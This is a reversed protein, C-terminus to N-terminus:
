DIHNDASERLRAERRAEREKVRRELEDRRQYQKELNRWYPIREEVCKPHRPDEGFSKESKCVPCGAEEKNCRSCLMATCYDCYEKQWWSFESEWCIACTKDMNKRSFYNTWWEVGLRRWPQIMRVVGDWIVHHGSFVTGPNIYARGIEKEIESRLYAQFKAHSGKGCTIFATKKNKTTAEIADQVLVGVEAPSADEPLILRRWYWVGADLLGRVVDKPYSEDWWGNIIM